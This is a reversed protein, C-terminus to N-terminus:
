GPAAGRASRLWQPFYRNRVEAWPTVASSRERRTGHRPHGPLSLHGHACGDLGGDVIGSLEVLEELAVVGFEGTQGVQQRTLRIRRVVECGIRQHRHPPVPSPHPRGLVRGRVRPTHHGVQGAGADAARHAFPPPDREEPGLAAVLDLLRVHGGDEIQALGELPEGEALAGAYHQPM